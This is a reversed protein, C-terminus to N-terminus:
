LLVEVLEMSARNGALCLVVTPSPLNRSPRVFLVFLLEQGSSKIFVLAGTAAVAITSFFGSIFPGIRFADDVYEHRLPRHAYDLVTQGDPSPKREPHTDGIYKRPAKTFVLGSVIAILVAPVILLLGMSMEGLRAAVIGGALLLMWLVTLLRGIDVVDAKADQEVPLVEQPLIQPPIRANPNLVRALCKPCTVRAPASRETRLVEGCEHCTLTSIV